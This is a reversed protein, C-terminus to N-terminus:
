ERMERQRQQEEEIMRRYGPDQMLEQQKQQIQDLADHRESRDADGCGSGLLAIGMLFAGALMMRTLRHMLM